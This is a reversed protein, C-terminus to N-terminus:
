EMAELISPLIQLKRSLINPFFHCEEVNCSFALDLTEKANTSYIVYTGNKIIDTIFLAALGPNNLNIEDSKGITKMMDISFGNGLLIFVNKQSAM